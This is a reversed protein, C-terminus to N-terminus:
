TGTSAAPADHWLVPVSSRPYSALRRTLEGAGAEDSEFPRGAWRQNRVLVVASGSRPWHRVAPLLEPMASGATVLAPLALYLQRGHPRLRRQVLLTHVPATPQLSLRSLLSAFASLTAGDPDVIVLLLPRLDYAGGRRLARALADATAPGDGPTDVWHPTHRYLSAWGQRDLVALGLDDPRQQCLLATIVHHAAAHAGAGYVGLHRWGAFPIYRVHRRGLRLLPIAMAAATPVASRGSFRVHISPPRWRLRFHPSADTQCAFAGDIRAQDDPRLDLMVLAEDNAIDVALVASNAGCGATVALVERIAAFARAEEDWPQEYAPTNEAAPGIAPAAAGVIDPAASSPQKRVVDQQGLRGALAWGAREEPLWRATWVAGTIAAFSAESQEPPTDPQKAPGDM